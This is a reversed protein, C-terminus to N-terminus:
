WSKLINGTEKAQTVRNDEIIWEILRCIKDKHRKLNEINSQTLYVGSIKTVYKRFYIVDDYKHSIHFKALSLWDCWPVGPKM